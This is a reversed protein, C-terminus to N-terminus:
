RGEARAKMKRAMELIKQDPKGGTQVEIELSGADPKEEQEQEATEAEPTEATEHQSLTDIAQKVSDFKQSLEQLLEPIIKELEEDSKGYTMDSAIGYVDMGLGKGFGEYRGFEPHKERFGDTYERKRRGDIIDNLGGTFTGFEKEIGDLRDTIKKQTLDDLVEDHWQVRECLTRVVDILEQITNEDGM